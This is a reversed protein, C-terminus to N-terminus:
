AVECSARASPMSCRASRAAASAATPSRTTRPPLKV